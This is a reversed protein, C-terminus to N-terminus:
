GGVMSASMQEVLCVAAWYTPADIEADVRVLNSFCNIEVTVDTVIM